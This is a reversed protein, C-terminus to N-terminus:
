PVWKSTSFPLLLPQVPNPPRTGAIAEDIKKRTGLRCRIDGREIYIDALKPDLDRAQSVSEEAKAYEGTMKLAKALLLRPQLSNPDTRLLGRLDDIAEQYRELKVYAGSRHYISRSKLDSADVGSIVKSFDIM